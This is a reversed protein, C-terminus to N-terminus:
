VKIKKMRENGWGSEILTAYSDEDRLDTELCAPRVNSESFTIPELLRILAIDNKKLTANYYPHPIFDKM